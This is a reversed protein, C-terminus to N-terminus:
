KPFEVFENGDPSITWRVLTLVNSQPGAYPGDTDTLFKWRVYEIELSELPPEGETTARANYKAIFRQFLNALDERYAPDEFARFLVVRHRSGRLIPFEIGPHVRVTQGDRTTANLRFYWANWARDIKSYMKWSTMPYHEIGYVNGIFFYVVVLAFAIRLVLARENNPGGSRATENRMSENEGVRDRDTNLSMAKRDQDARDVPSDGDDESRVPGRGIGRRLAAMSIFFLPVFLLDQFVLRQAIWIGVHLGLAATPLIWRAIRSYLVLPFFLEVLLGGLGIFGFLAAPAGFILSEIGWDFVMFDDLQDSFIIFQMNSPWWWFLGTNRIKSIAAGLYMMAFPTWILMRAAGYESTQLFPNLRDGHSLRRMLADVSWVRSCPTLILLPLLALVSFFEHYCFNYERGIGMFVFYSLYACALSWRTLFGIAGLILFLGTTWRIGFLITPDRFAEALGFSHKMETFLGLPKILGAPMDAAAEPKTWFFALLGISCVTIRLFALDAACGPVRWGRRWQWERLGILILPGLVVLLFDAM